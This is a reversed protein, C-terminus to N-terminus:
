VEENRGLIAYFVDTTALMQSIDVSGLTNLGTNGVASDGIRSPDPHFIIRQQSDLVYMYNDQYGYQSSLLQSIFNQEKLYITGGVFGLYQGFADVVPESIYIM